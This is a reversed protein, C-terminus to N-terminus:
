RWEVEFQRVIEDAAGPNRAQETPIAIYRGDILVPKGERQYFDRLESSIQWMNAAEIDIRKEGILVAEESEIGPNRDRRPLRLELPGAVRAERDAGIRAFPFTLKAKRIPSTDPQPRYPRFVLDEIRGEQLM